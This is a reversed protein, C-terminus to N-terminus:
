PMALWTSVTVGIESGVHGIENEFDSCFEDISDTRLVVLFEGIEDFELCLSQSSELFEEVFGSRVAGSSGAIGTLGVFDLARVALVVM